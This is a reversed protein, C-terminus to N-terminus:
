FSRDNIFSIAVEKEIADPIQIYCLFDSFISNCLYVM